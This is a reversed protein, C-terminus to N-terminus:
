STTGCYIRVYSQLFATNYNLAPQYGSGPVIEGDVDDTGQHIDVADAWRRISERARLLDAGYAQYARRLADLSTIDTAVLGGATAGALGGSKNVGQQPTSAGAAGGASAAEHDRLEARLKSVETLLDQKLSSLQTFVVSIVVLVSVSLVGWKMMAMVLTSGPISGSHSRCGYYM